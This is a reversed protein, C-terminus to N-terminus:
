PLEEIGEETPVINYIFTVNYIYILVRRATLILFLNKTKVIDKIIIKNEM